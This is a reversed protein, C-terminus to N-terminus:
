QEALVRDLITRVVRLDAAQWTASASWATPQAVVAITRVGAATGAEIDFRFDGVLVTEDAGASCATMLHRVGEPSPKPAHDERAVATDFTLGHRSAVADVSARSNRTLLAIKVGRSRLHALLDPAGAMLRSTRVAETEHRDLIREARVRQPPSLAELAELIPVGEPLGIEARIAGFDLPSEILTGDLDFIVLKLTM